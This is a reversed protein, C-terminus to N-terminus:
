CAETPSRSFELIQSSRLACRLDRREAVGSKRNSKTANNCNMRGEKRFPAYAAKDLAAHCSIRTREPRSSLPAHPAKLPSQNTSSRFLLDRREPGVAPRSLRSSLKTQSHWTNNGLHLTMGVPAYGSKRDRQMLCSRMFQSLAMLTASSLLSSLQRTCAMTNASLHFASTPQSTHCLLTPIRLVPVGVM